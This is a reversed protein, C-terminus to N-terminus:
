FSRKTKRYERELEGRRRSWNTGKQLITVRGAAYAVKNWFDEWKEDQIIKSLVTNFGKGKHNVWFATRAITNPTVKLIGCISNYDYGKILLLAIALRKSLVIKETPTLFEEVFLSVESKNSLKILTKLLIESIREQIDKAVNRRSIQTM